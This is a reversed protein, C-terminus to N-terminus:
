REPDQGPRAPKIVGLRELSEILVDGWPTVDGRRRWAAALDAVAPGGARSGFHISESALEGLGVALLLECGRRSPLRPRQSTSSADSADAMEIAAHDLSSTVSRKGGGGAPRWSFTAEAVPGSTSAAPRGVIEYVARVTQGALLDIPATRGSALSEVVSQRHGVLRYAHVFRPDFRVSLRCETAAVASRGFIREAVARGVEGSTPVTLSSDAAPPSGAHPALRVILANGTVAPPRPDSEVRGGTVLVVPGTGGSTAVIQRAVDVAAEVGTASGAPRERELEDVLAAVAPADLRRGALRSQEGVVLITLRDGSRMEAAVMRLGRCTAFWAGPSTSRDLVVAAEVPTEPRDLLPATVEIEVLAAAVPRLSRVGHMALRAGRDGDPRKEFREPAAALVDEVRLRAWESRRIRRSSSWRIADFSATRATLPPTDVAPGSAPSVFPAEGHRLDFLRDYGRSRPVVRRAGGPLPSVVEMPEDGRDIRPVAAPFGVVPVPPEAIEETDAGPEDFALEPFANAPDDAGGPMSPPQPREEGHVVSAVGDPGFQSRTGGDVGRVAPPDIELHSSVIEFPKRSAVPFGPGAVILVVLLTLLLGAAAAAGWARDRGRGPGSDVSALRVQSDAVRASELDVVRSRRGARGGGAQGRCARVRDGLGAPVIVTCLLRDIADDDFLVDLAMRQQLGQPLPVEGLGTDIPEREAM